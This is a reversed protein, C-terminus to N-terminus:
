DYSFDSLVEIEKLVADIKEKEVLKFLMTQGDIVVPFVTNNETADKEKINELLMLLSQIKGMNSKYFFFQRGNISHGIGAPCSALLMNDMDGM